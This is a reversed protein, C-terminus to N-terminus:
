VVEFSSMMCNDEHELVHCHYPYTGAYGPPFWLLLEVVTNSEVRATDQRAIGDLPEPPAPRLSQGELKWRRLIVFQVLHVHFPHMDPLDDTVALPQDNGINAV